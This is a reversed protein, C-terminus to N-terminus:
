RDRHRAYFYNALAQTIGLIPNCLFSIASCAYGFKDSKTMHAM